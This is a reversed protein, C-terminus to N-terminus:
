GKFIGYYINDIIIIIIIILTLVDRWLSWGDSECWTQLLLLLLLCCHAWHSDSSGAPQHYHGARGRRLGWTLCRVALSTSKIQGQKCTWSKPSPNSYILKEEQPPVPVPGTGTKTGYRLLSSFLLFQTIKRVSNWWICDLSSRDNSDPSLFFFKNQEIFPYFFMYHASHLTYAECGFLSCWTWWESSIIFIDQSAEHLHISIQQKREELPVPSVCRSRAAPPILRSGSSTLRSRVCLRNTSKHRPETGGWRWTCVVLAAQLQLLCGLGRM